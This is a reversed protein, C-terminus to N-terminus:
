YSCQGDNSATQTEVNLRNKVVFCVVRSTGCGFINVVFNTMFRRNVVASSFSYVRLTLIGVLPRYTDPAVLRFSTLGSHESAGGDTAGM